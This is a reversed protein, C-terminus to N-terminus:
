SSYSGSSDSSGSYSSKGYSYINSGSYSPKKLSGFLNSSGGSSSYSSSPDSPSSGKNWGKGATFTNYNSSSSSDKNWNTRTATPSTEGPLPKGIVLIGGKKVTM